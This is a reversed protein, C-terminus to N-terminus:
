IEGHHNDTLESKYAEKGTNRESAQRKRSSKAWDGAGRDPDAKAIM